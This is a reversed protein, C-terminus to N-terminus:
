EVDRTASWQKDVGGGGETTAQVYADLLQYLRGGQALEAALNENKLILHASGPAAGTEGAIIDIKASLPWLMTM